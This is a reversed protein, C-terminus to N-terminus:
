EAPGIMGAMRARAAAASIRRVDLWVAGSPSIGVSMGVSKDAMRHM